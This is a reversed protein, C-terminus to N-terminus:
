KHYIWIKSIPWIAEPMSVPNQCAFPGVLKYFLDLKLRSLADAKANQKSRVYCAVVKVNQVLSELVLIRMLVMCNACSSSNNNIMAVVSQNDCFICIKQNRFKGIWLLIGATVAFLEMYEISPKTSRMFWTDWPQMFWEDDCIGGCGLEFNGSADTYFNLVTTPTALSFDTFQRCFVSQHGLFQLWMRLDAKMEGSIKIHHYPKLKTKGVLGSYLRRTFTRGPFICRCLFNLYGCLQQIRRLTTKSKKATLFEQILIVAREVKKVPICVLQNECDILFGLFTTSTVARHTKEQSVPMNIDKCIQIFMDLQQNCAWKFSAVFLYDDLYNILRASVKVQVIHAIGDSVEQFLACSISSGFPLCKDVFFYWKQDIPSRAKM